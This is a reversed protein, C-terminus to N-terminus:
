LGGENPFVVMTKTGMGPKSICQYVVNKCHLEARSRVNEIGVHEGQKGLNVDFGVGNDSVALIMVTGIGKIEVSKACIQIEITQDTDGRGHKISNEVIPQLLLKPIKKLKCEEDIWFAYELREDYKLKELILYDKLFNIEEQVTVIEKIDCTYRFLRSLGIISKELVEKEGMRNLAVFGNLTNYLFHPNIQSQLALYQAKQQQIVLIYEREIYEKLHDIMQNIVKAIKRYESDSRIEIHRDLQGNEVEQIVAMIQEVDSVMKKAQKRYNLFGLLGALLIVLVSGVAINMYGGYQMLFTSLYTVQLQTDPIEKKHMLYSNLEKEIEGTKAFIEGDKLLVINSGETESFTGLADIMEGDDVDIKIIGILKHTDLNMVGCIYSYVEGLRDNQMYIPIHPKYYVVSQPSELAEQYWEENQYNKYEICKIDASGKGLCYVKEGGSIPFFAITRIKQSSTHMMKQLTMTYTDEMDNLKMQDYYEYLKPNNMQEAKQFVDNFYFADRVKKVEAFQLELNQSVSNLINHINRKERENFEYMSYGLFSLFVIVVLILISYIYMSYVKTGFTKEKQRM